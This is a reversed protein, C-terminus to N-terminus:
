SAAPTLPVRKTGPDSTEQVGMRVLEGLSVRQTSHSVRLIFVLGLMGSGSVIGMVMGFCLSGLYDALVAVM